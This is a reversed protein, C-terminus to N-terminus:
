GGTGAALVLYIALEALEKGAGLADGTVGGIQRLCHRRWLWTIALLTLSLAVLAPPWLLLVLLLCGASAATFRAATVGDVLPKGTGEGRVYSTYRILPLATWRGLAQGLVLAAPVATEPLASLAAFKLLLAMVLALAGYSGLRSDKMIRLKDAVTWGGGFGDATDALGDEHFGGTLLLSAAMALLLAVPSTWLTSATYFVLAALAGVLLGVGPFYASARALIDDNCTTAPLPIRTLFTIACHLAQWEQQLSTAHAHPRATM